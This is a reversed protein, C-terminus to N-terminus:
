KKSRRIIEDIQNAIESLGEKVAIERFLRWMPIQIPTIKTTTFPSAEVHIEQEAKYFPSRKYHFWGLSIGLVSVVLIGFILFFTFKPFFFQLFPLNQIALYYIASAYGLLSVPLALYTSYGIRFYFFSRVLIRKWNM